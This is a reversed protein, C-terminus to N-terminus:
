SAMKIDVLGKLYELLVKILGLHTFVNVLHDYPTSCTVHVLTVEVLAKVSRKQNRCPRPTVNTHVNHDELLVRPRLISDHHHYISEELHCVENSAM